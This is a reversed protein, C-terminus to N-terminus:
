RFEAQEGRGKLSVNISSFDPAMADEEGSVGDVLYNYDPYPRGRMISQHENRGPLLLVHMPTETTATGDPQISTSFL